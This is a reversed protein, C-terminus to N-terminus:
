FQDGLALSSIPGLKMEDDESFFFHCREDAMHGSFSSLKHHLLCHTCYLEALHLELSISICRLDSSCHWVVSIFLAVRTIVHDVCCANM